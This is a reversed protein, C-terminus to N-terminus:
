RRQLGGEVFELVAGFVVQFDASYNNFVCSSNWLRTVTLQFSLQSGPSVVATSVRYKTTLVEQLKVNSRSKNSM